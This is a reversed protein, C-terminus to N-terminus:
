EAAVAVRRALPYEASEYLQRIAGSDFRREDVELCAGLLLDPPLDEIAFRIAQAAQNFRKYGIPQRKSNRKRTPFLEATANYDFETTATMSM